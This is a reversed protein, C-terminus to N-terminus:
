NKPTESLPESKTLTKLFYNMMPWVKMWFIINIARYFHLRSLGSILMKIDSFILYFLCFIKPINQYMYKDDNKLYIIIVFIHM